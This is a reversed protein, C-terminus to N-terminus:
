KIRATAKRKKGFSIGSIVSVFSLLIAGLMQLKTQKADGTQPLTNLANHIDSAVGNVNSVNTMTTTKNSYAPNYGNLSPTGGGFNYVAINDTQANGDYNTVTVNNNQGVNNNDTDTVSNGPESPDTSKTTTGNSDSPTNTNTEPTTVNPDSPINTNTEPTATPNGPTVPNIEPNGPTSTNTGTGTNTNRGNHSNNTTSTNDKPQQPLSAKALTIIPAVVGTVTGLESNVKTGGSYNEVEPADKLKGLETDTYTPLAPLLNSNLSLESNLNVINDLTSTQVIDFVPSAGITKGGKDDTTTITPEALYYFKYTPQEHLDYGIGKFLSGFLESIPDATKFVYFNSTSGPAGQAQDIKTGPVVIAALYYNKGDQSYTSKVSSRLASEVAAQDTANLAYYHTGNDDTEKILDKKYITPIDVNILDDSNTTMEPDAKDGLEMGYTDSDVDNDNNNVFSDLSDGMYIDVTLSTKSTGNKVVSTDTNDTSLKAANQMSIKAADNLADNPKQDNIKILLQGYNDKFTTLDGNFATLEGQLAEVSTLKQIGLASGTAKNFDDVADAYAKALNGYSSNKPETIADNYLAGTAIYTDGIEKIQTALIGWENTVNAAQSTSNWVKATNNILGAVGNIEDIKQQLLRQTKKVSVLSDTADIIKNNKTIEDSLNNQLPTLDTLKSKSIDVSDQYNNLAAQYVKQNEVLTGVSNNLTDQATKVSDGLTKLKKVSDDSLVTNTVTDVQSARQIDIKYATVAQSWNDIYKQLDSTKVSINKSAAAFDVESAGESGSLDSYKKQLEQLEKAATIIDTEGKEIDSSNAPQIGSDDIAQVTNLAKQYAAVATKWNNLNKNVISTQSNTIDYAAKADAYAKASKLYSVIKDVSDTSSKQGDATTTSVVVKSPGDSNTKDYTDVASNYATVAADYAIKLENITNINEVYDSSNKSTTIADNLTNAATNLNSQATNVAEAKGYNDKNNQVVKLQDNITNQYDKVIGDYDELTNNGVTKGDQTVSSVASPKAAVLANITAQYTAVTADTDALTDNFKGSKAQYDDLAEQLDSQWNPTTTLDKKNLIGQLASLSDNAAKADDNATDTQTEAADYSDSLKESDPKNAEVAPDVAPIGTKITSATTPEPTPAEAVPESALVPTVPTKEVSTPDTTVGDASKTVTTTGNSVTPSDTTPKSTVAPKAADVNSTSVPAKPAANTSTTVSDDAAAQVSQTNTNLVLGISLATLGAVYLWKRDEKFVKNKPNDVLNKV